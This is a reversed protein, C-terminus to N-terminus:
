RQCKPCYFTSRQGIRITKITTGCRYCPMGARDYVQLKTKFQGHEGHSNKYDRFTTGGHKISALLVQKITKVLKKCHDLSLKKTITTPKIGALFLAESAYINGVGVVNKSNMIFTKIATLKNKAKLSLYEGTFDPSLPEPGLQALLKHQLPDKETWVMSGFRRPDNFRICKGNDLTIEIHDHKKTPSKEPLVQLTGTMGLHAILTGNPFSILLYKGRRSIGKITQHALKTPLSKPVPWRLRHQNIRVQAIKAGVISAAIGRCITEVEPLEPM